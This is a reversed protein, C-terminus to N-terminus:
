MTQPEEVSVSHIKLQVLVVHVFFQSQDKLFVSSFSLLEFPASAFLLSGALAM